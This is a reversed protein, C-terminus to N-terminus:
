SGHHRQVVGYLRLRKLSPLEGEICANRKHMEEFMYALFSKIAKRVVVGGHGKGVIGM